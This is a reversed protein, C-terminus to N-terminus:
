SHPPLKQKQIRSHIMPSPIHENNSSNESKIQSMKEKTDRLSHETLYIAYEYFLQRTLESQEKLKADQFM